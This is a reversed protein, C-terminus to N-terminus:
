DFCWQVLVMLGIAFAGIVVGGLIYILIGLSSAFWGITYLGLGIISWGIFRKVKQKIM